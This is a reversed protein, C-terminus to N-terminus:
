GRGARKKSERLLKLFAEDNEADGVAVANRIVWPALVLVLACLGATAEFMRRKLPMEALLVAPLFAVAFLVLADGRCLAALGISGSAVCWRTTSPRERAKQILVLAVLILPVVLTESMLSANM